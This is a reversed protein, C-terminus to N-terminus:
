KANINTLEQPQQGEQDGPGPAELNPPSGQDLHDDQEQDGHPTDEGAADAMAVDQGQDEPQPPDDDAACRQSPIIRVM